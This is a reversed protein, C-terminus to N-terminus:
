FAGIFKKLIKIPIYLCVVSKWIKSTMAIMPGYYYLISYKM